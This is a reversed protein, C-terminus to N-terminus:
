QATTGSKPRPDQDRLYPEAMVRAIDLLHKRHKPPLVAWYRLLETADKHFRRNFMAADSGSAGPEGQLLWNVDVDLISAVIAAKKIRPVKTGALWYSVTAQSVGFLKSWEIQTDDAYPSAALARKLRDAFEM